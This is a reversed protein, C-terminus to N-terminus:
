CIVGMSRGVRYVGGVLVMREEDPSYVLVPLESYDSGFEYGFMHEYEVREGSRTSMYRFREVPGIVIPSAQGVALGAARLKRLDLRQRGGVLHLQSGNEGSVWVRIGDGAFDILTTCGYRLFRTAAADPELVSFGRLEGLEWAGPVNDPGVHAVPTALGVRNLAAQAHALFRQTLGQM